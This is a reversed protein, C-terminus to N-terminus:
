KALLDLHGCAIHGEEHALAVLKEDAATLEIRVFVFHLNDKSYTFAKASKALSDLQLRSIVDNEELSDCSYDIVEFGQDELIYALNELTVNAIHYKTLIYNATKRTSRDNKM